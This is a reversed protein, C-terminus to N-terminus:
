MLNKKNHEYRDRVSKSKSKQLAHRCCHNCNFKEACVCSGDLLQINNKGGLDNDIYVLM